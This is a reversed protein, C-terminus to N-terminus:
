ANVLLRLLNKFEKVASEISDNNVIYLPTNTERAIESAARNESVIEQRISEVNLVRHVTKDNIRRDLIKNPDAEVLIHANIERKFEDPMIARFNGKDFEVYHSDLIVIGYRSKRIADIATLRIDRKEIDPLDAWNYFKGKAADRLLNSVHIVYIEKNQIKEGKFESLLRTKGVGKAGGVHLLIKEM